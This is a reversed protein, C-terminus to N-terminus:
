GLTTNPLFTLIEEATSIFDNECISSQSICSFQTIPGKALILPSLMKPLSVLTPLKTSIFFLLKSLFTLILWKDYM